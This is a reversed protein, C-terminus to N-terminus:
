RVKVNSKHMNTYKNVDSPRVGRKHLRLGKVDSEDCQEGEM